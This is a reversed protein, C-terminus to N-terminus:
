QKGGLSKFNQKREPVSLWNYIYEQVNHLNGNFTICLSSNIDRRVWTGGRSLSLLDKILGKLGDENLTFIVKDM